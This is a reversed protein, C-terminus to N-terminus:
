SKLMKDIMRVLTRMHIPKQIYKDHRLEKLDDGNIEFASMLIVRIDQNIRYVRQILELGSIGPMRIDTIILSYGQPRKEIEKLAAIADLYSVVAYGEKQLFDNFLNLIDEDDDIIMITMTADISSQSGIHTM